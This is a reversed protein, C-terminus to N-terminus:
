DFHGEHAARWGNIIDHAHARPKNPLQLELIRLSGEGCGVCWGKKSMTWHGAALKEECDEVRYIKVRQDGLMTWAGPIPSVGHIFHRLEDSDKSWDIGCQDRWVKPAATAKSEDQQSTIFKGSLLMSTTDLAAEAALPMLSQYLEGFTIDPELAYRKQMIITGTDVVDNLLFSTVGSEKDRNIIAHHIPAAGRYRPLLSAHVNFAGKSALRYVEAPLIRFAIVCIIDPKIEALSAIFEPDRLSTPQLITRIGLERAAIKIACESIKQGRGAEKDAGCVVAALGFREHLAKMAPVGFEATGMFVISQTSNM